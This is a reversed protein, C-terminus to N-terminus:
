VTVPPARSQGVHDPRIRTFLHFVEAFRIVESASRPAIDLVTPLLAALQHKATATAPCKLASAEIPAGDEDQALPQCVSWSELTSFGLTNFDRQQAAAQHLPMLLTLVYIALLALAIGTERAMIPWNKRMSMNVVSEIARGPEPSLGAPM